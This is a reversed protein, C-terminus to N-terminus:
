QADEPEGKVLELTANVMRITENLQLILAAKNDECDEILEKLYKVKEFVLDETLVTTVVGDWEVGVKQVTARPDKVLELFETAEYLDNKCKLISGDQDIAEAENTLSFKDNLKDLVRDKLMAPVDAEPTFPFVPLSGLAKRMVGLTDEAAKGSGNVLVKGDPRFVVYHVKPAQPFTNSMVYAEADEYLVKDVKSPVHDEKNEEMWSLQKVAHYAEIEHKNVTKGQTLVKLIVNGNMETVYEETFDTVTFGIKSKETGKCPKFKYQEFVAVNNKIATLVDQIRDQEIEFISFKAFLAKVQAM